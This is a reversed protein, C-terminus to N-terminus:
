TYPGRWWLLEKGRVNRAEFANQGASSRNVIQHFCQRAQQAMKTQDSESVAGIVYRVVCTFKSPAQKTGCLDDMLTYRDVQQRCAFSAACSLVHPHSCFEASTTQGTRRVLSTELERPMVITPLVECGAHHGRQGRGGQFGGCIAKAQKLQACGCRFIIM